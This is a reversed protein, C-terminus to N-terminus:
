KQFDTLLKRYRMLAELYYYDAYIIPVDVEYNGPRSGTSHQIFAANDTGSKYKESSLNALFERATNLYKIKLSQSGALGSLELLASATIAAASADRPANPIAPDDFDWYPVLDDPLRRIFADLLAQATHLFAEIGTERYCMTFGYIGWAQGRAWVSNDAYGQHTNRQIVSGTKDDYVVVHWTTSDPRIQNQMTKYAHKVAIHYYSSDGTIKTAHFLLELNMMNDIITNHPYYQGNRVKAPWSLITGVEPNYLNVLSDAAVILIERYATKGTLRYANGSSCNFIFGLDHSKVPNNLIPELATTFSEAKNKFLTDNSYEYAYWLIGPWFGSVWNNAKRLEWHYEGQHIQRPTLQYDKIEGLTVTIKDICYDIENEVHFVADGSPSEKSAPCGALLIAAMYLLLIVYNRRM